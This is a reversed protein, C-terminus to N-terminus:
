KSAEELIQNRFFVIDLQNEPLTMDVSSKMEEPIHLMTNTLIAFFMDCKPLYGQEARIALARGGHHYFKNGNPLESIYMGYGTQTPLTESTVEYFPTTMQQYSEESLIKNNHLAKNWKTLDETTSVLGGDAFPSLFYNFELPTFVPNKGNPTVFYRVPYQDSLEGKQYKLAIELSSLSTDNMELPKFFEKEFFEGLSEKTIEEIIIGLLVYNTNCYNYEKGVEHLSPKSSAFAIISKNIERLPLLPDMQHVLVYEPIGSTHTLLNHITAKQAWDPIKDEPWIGSSIPLYTAVTENLNVLGRDKLLLISAATFPKTCSAIPMKQDIQLPTKDEISHYGTSEKVKTSGLEFLYTANLNHDQTYNEVSKKINNPSCQGALALNNVNFIILIFVSIFGFRTNSM